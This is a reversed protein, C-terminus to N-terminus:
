LHAAILEGLTLAQRQRLDNIQKRCSFGDALLIADPGAADIAPLLDHEAVKISVEYHGKEVGFNGALGCCGGLTVVKAGTRELLKQDAAWGLVSSQHCHPQAVITHGSLDPPNWGETKGLLEALTHTAHAVEAVREDGELLEGADSRWVAMCSPEMGVIPTGAKAIPYLVDLAKRLHAKAGDLQGTTIWTLGCCADQEIMRPAYGASILTAVLGLLQNGEFADSFSDAWIAVPKGQPERRAIERAADKRASAGKRFKPMPRRQDVGAMARVVHRLGPTQTFLNGLAGVHLKTVLRGWTPLHGMAYHSMPRLHHKFKEYLVRSKYAAMDIGTPCERRCGKCALCFDLAEAVEPARWGGTILRGNIMEQLVHSRGRTSDRENGTAQYSPCMVGGAKTSNALCKGVGTCQHVHRTFLPDSLRLPANITEAVRVDVDTPRPDVIVGPNLLNKPDFLNKVQGFLKIMDGSYMLPLLESRARGDGHEGSMSGGHSAVLKGAAIMFDHYPDTGGPQDFPFDIRCHLCGDGFHGYPLGHLNHEELLKEFDALYSGLQAPPVASDEWGAYAPNKLAVGALGAADSRIGWLRQAQAPDDIVWGELCDSERTLRQAKDTLEAPDDGVMEVFAWGEGRPLPPVASPGLRTAVLDALRSDMGEVATPKFELIKPTAAGADVMTPYGLAVMIKHPADAVLRVTAQTMIALTGETGSLFRAVDRGNEPLLHEMSYGSVQRTFRGCETRIMGLNSEVIENLQPFDNSEGPGVRLEQGAGTIVDLSITNDASRGYGLARPGCANNGIMGGITCRSSTSPDPGFRLGFPRVAQQLVDQVVGPQVTATRADPDISLIKNLHRRMDVVIGNGVANGACSTGAGRGTIPLGVALAAQVVHRLQDTDAPTAVVTPVVRYVSADTSYLARTLTSTDLCDDSGLERRLADVRDSLENVPISQVSASM